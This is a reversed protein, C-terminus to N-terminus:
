TLAGREMLERLAADVEEDTLADVQAAISDATAAAASPPSSQELMSALEDALEAITPGQLLRVTPLAVGITRAIRNKFEVATLSDLGLASISVDVDVESDGFGLIAGLTSALHATVRAAREEPPGDLLGLPRDAVIPRGNGAEGQGMVDSLLPSATYSPYLEAWRKWNVPLVAAHAVDAAMLRGLADFGEDTRMAGMGREGLARVSDADFRSAMGAEGWVGWDVSLTPRGHARRWGAFADLFCNAAAYAGLKPSSLLASASSFLVFFDLPAHALSRDLAWAGLKPRLVTALHRADLELLTAHQLVGATHVVGRIPPWGELDHTDFLRTLAAVDAIDIAVTQVSAGAAELERIAAIAASQPHDASLERWQVRPPLATRGLLMLRRAAPHGLWRASEVGLGGLGGTIVYTGDPRVSPATRPPATLRELRAGFRGGQRLAVQDEGAPARLHRWLMRASSEDAADLDVLGGFLEPNEVALTRGIGWLPAQWVGAPSPAGDVAHVGATAIWLRSGARAAMSRVLDLLDAVCADVGANEDSLGLARLHLVGALPRALADHSSRADVVINAAVGDSKMEAAIATALDRRADDAVILWDGDGAVSSEAFPIERWGVGYFWDEVRSQPAEGHGFELYRLRAGNLSSVLRGEEDFVRVDGRRVMPDDTDTVRAHAFLRTGRPRDYITVREIGQGVFAGGGAVKSAPATVAALIHGTADAVAPHFYYSDMESRLPEPITVHSWGENEALWAHAVGQFTPGWQNGREHFLAYFADGTIEERAVKEFGVPQQAPEAAEAREVHCVAHLVWPAGDAIRSHVRVSGHEYRVQVRATAGPTLFLPKFFDADTVEIPGDGLVDHAAAVAMELYATAPVVAGGQVCHDALYPLRDFSVDSEWAYAEEAGAITFRAGLLPHTGPRSRRMTARPAQDIWYRQRQFPYTPIAVRKRAPSADLAALDIAVGHVHLAGASELIQQTAGRDKRLSATWVQGDGGICQRGLSSLTSTPGVELFTDFGADAFTNMATNFEVADRVQRRWYEAQRLEALSTERGTVSSVVRATPARFELSAARRAFQDAVADMQPSHFAQSVTLRKVEVGQAILRAEVRALEELRGSLVSAEPANAAALSVFKEEGAIAAEAIARSARVSTMGWGAGLTQMLRGREAILELGDELTWVGAVCLAVYEGVSHGFVAAPRLGWSKWLEALSWELAFLAPQTYATEDLRVSASGYL